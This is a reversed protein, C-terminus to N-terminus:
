TLIPSKKEEETPSYSGNYKYGGPREGSGGTGSRKMARYFRFDYYSAFCMCLEFVIEALLTIIMGSYAKFHRRLNFELLIDQNRVNYVGHKDRLTATITNIREQLANKAPILKYYFKGEHNYNSPDDILAQYEGKAQALEDQMALAEPDSSQGVLGAQGSHDMNFFYMGAVSLVISLAFLGFNISGATWNFSKNKAWFYDWFIDSYKRKYKEMSILILIALAYPLWFLYPLALSELLVKCGYFGAAASVINAIYSLVHSTQRNQANRHLWSKTSSFRGEFRQQLVEEQSKQEESSLRQDLDPDIKDQIVKWTKM